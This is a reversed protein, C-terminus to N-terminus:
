KVSLIDELKIWDYDDGYEIKIRKLQQDIKTVVGRVELDEFPDYLQLVIESGESMSEGIARSIIELEQEDLEPKTRRNRERGYMRIAAAHEPIIMRSSEYLGNGELKKGM